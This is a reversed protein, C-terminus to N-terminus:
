VTTSTCTSSNRVGMVQVKDGGVPAAVLTWATNLSLTKCNAAGVLVPVTSPSGNVSVTVAALVAAPAAFVALFSALRMRATTKALSPGARGPGDPRAAAPGPSLRDA